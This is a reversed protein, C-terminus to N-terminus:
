VGLERRRRQRFEIVALWDHDSMDILDQIPKAIYGHLEIFLARRADADPVISELREGRHVIRTRIGSENTLDRFRSSLAHYQQRTTAIHASIESKARKMGVYEGRGAIFELTSIARIFKDTESNSELAETFMALARRALYGVEGSGIRAVSPSIELELGIGVAVLHTVCQGAIIYAENDELFYFLAASYPSALDFTGAHGPLSDPLDLRCQEFRVLDVAREAYESVARIVDIHGKHTADFLQRSTVNCPFAILAYRNFHELSIRTLGSQYWALSNGLLHFVKAGSEELRQRAAEAREFELLPYSVINLEHLDIEGRSYITFKDLVDIPELGIEVRPLTMICLSQGKQMESLFKSVVVPLVKSM